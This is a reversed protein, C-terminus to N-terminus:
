SKSTLCFSVFALGHPRGEDITFGVEVGSPLVIREQLLKPKPELFYPCPLGYWNENSGPELCAKRSSGHMM